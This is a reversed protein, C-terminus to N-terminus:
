SLRSGFRCCQSSSTSMSSGRRSSAANLSQPYFQFIENILSNKIQQKKGSPQIGQLTGQVLVLPANRFQQMSKQGVDFREKGVWELVHSFPESPLKKIHRSSMLNFQFSWIIAFNTCQLSLYNNKTKQIKFKKNLNNSYSPTESYKSKNDQINQNIKM